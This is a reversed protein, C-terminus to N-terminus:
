RDGADRGAAEAGLRSRLARSLAAAGLILVFWVAFLYIGGGSTSRGTAAAGLLPLVFLATGLVPLLRAADGLRRRRYGQRALFLPEAPAKM